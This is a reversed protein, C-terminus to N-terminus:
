PAWCPCPFIEFFVTSHLKFRISATSCLGICWPNMPSRNEPMEFHKLTATGLYLYSLADAFRGSLKERRKLDGGLTLLAVDALYAFAASQQAVRRYYRRMSVGQPAPALLGASIGYVFARVKNGAAYGLHQVLLEDFQEIAKEKSEDYVEAAAVEKLLYPHCRM